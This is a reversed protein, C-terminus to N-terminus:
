SSYLQRKPKQSKAKPKERRQYNTLKKKGQHGIQNETYIKKAM